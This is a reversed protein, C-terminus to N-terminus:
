HKVNWGGCYCCLSGMASVWERLIVHVRTRELLQRELSYLAFYTSSQYVLQGNEGQVNCLEKVKSYDDVLKLMMKDLEKVELSDDGYIISLRLHSTHDLLMDNIKLFLNKLEFDELM